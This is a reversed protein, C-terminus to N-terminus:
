DSRRGEAGQKNRMEERANKVKRKENKMQM